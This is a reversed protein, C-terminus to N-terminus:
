CNQATALKRIDVVECNRVDFYKLVETPTIKGANVLRGIDAASLYELKLAFLPCIEKVVASTKLM